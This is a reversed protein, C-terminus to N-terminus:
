NTSSTFRWRSATNSAPTDFCLGGFRKRIEWNQHDGRKAPWQKEPVPIALCFLRLKEGEPVSPNVVLALTSMVKIESGSFIKGTGIFSFVADHEQIQNEFGKRSSRSKGKGAM